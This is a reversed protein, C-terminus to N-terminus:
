EDSKWMVECDNKTSKNQLSSYPLLLLYRITIHIVPTSFLYPSCHIRKRLECRMLMAISKVRVTRIHCISRILRCM